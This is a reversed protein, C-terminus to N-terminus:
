PKLGPNCRVEFVQRGCPADPRSCRNQATRSNASPGAAGRHVVRPRCLLLRDRPIDLPLKGLEGKRTKQRKDRAMAPTALSTLLRRMRPMAPIPKWRQKRRADLYRRPSSSSCCTQALRNRTTPYCAAWRRPLPPLESSYSLFFASSRFDSQVNERGGVEGRSRNQTSAGLFIWGLRTKRPPDLPTTM